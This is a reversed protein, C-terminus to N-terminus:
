ENVTETCPIFKINEQRLTYNWVPDYLRGNRSFPYHNIKILNMDRTFRDAFMLAGQFIDTLKVSQIFFLSCSPQFPCNDGDLDSIFFNYLKKSGDLVFNGYKRERGPKTRVEDDSASYPIYAKEWRQWDTQASLSSCFM